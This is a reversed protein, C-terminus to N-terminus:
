WPAPARREGGVPRAAVPAGQAPTIHDKAHSARRHARDGNGRATAHAPSVTRKRHTRPASYHMRPQICTYMTTSVVATAQPEPPAFLTRMYRLRTQRRHPPTALQNRKRECRQASTFMAPERNTLHHTAFEVACHPHPWHTRCGHPLTSLLTCCVSLVAHDQSQQAVAANRLQTQRNRFPKLSAQTHPHKNTHRGLICDSAVLAQSRRCRPRTDATAQGTRVTCPTSFRL